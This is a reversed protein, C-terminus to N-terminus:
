KLNPITEAIWGAYALSNTYVGSDNCFATGRSTVGFLFYQGDKEIYAPGGSDGSCTGAKTEDLMVESEVVVSIPAKTQRLIGDGSMEVEMCNSQNYDCIVEGDAIAQELNRYKKPDISRTEVSNVGYGAVTVLTGRQLFSPDQLFTAPKFGTPLPGKFKVLAIDGRDGLSTDDANPNWKTNAKFDTVILVHANKVDLERSSMMEDINPGFVVRMDSPRGEICHAATMVINEAILSGTCIYQAKVNYLGVISALIPEKERVEQGNMIGNLDSNWQYTHTSKPGCSVLAMAGLLSVLSKLDSLKFM